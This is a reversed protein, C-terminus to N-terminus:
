SGFVIESSSEGEFGNMLSHSLSLSTKQWFVLPLLDPETLLFDASVHSMVPLLPNPNRGEQGGMFRGWLASAWLGPVTVGWSKLYGEWNLEDLWYEADLPLISNLIPNGEAGFFSLASPRGLRV